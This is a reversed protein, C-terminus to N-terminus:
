EKKCPYARKLILAAAAGAPLNIEFPIKKLDDAMMRNYTLRVEDMSIGKPPCVVDKSTDAGILGDILGLLFLTCLERPAVDTAECKENLDRTLFESGSCALPWLFAALAVWKKM